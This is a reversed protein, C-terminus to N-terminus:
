HSRGSNFLVGTGLRDVFREALQQFYVQQGRCQVQHEQRKLMETEVVVCDLGIVACSFVRALM